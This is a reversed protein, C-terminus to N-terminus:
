KKTVKRKKVPSIVMALHRGMFKPKMDVTVNEGVDELVKEMLEYGFKKSGMQRGKFKVVVRVKHSDKLFETIRELRVNYDGGAIFPSLRVEKLEGGKTKGSKKQKKEEQYKFKGFDIIRVVPPSAAPAIEVLDLGLKVALELAKNTSMVGVQKGEESLVRVEPSRINQNLRWYNRKL